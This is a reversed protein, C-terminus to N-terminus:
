YMCTRGDKQSLNKRMKEGINRSDTFCMPFSTLSNVLNSKLVMRFFVIRFIKIKIMMVMMMMIMMMIMLIM